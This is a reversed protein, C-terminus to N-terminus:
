RIGILYNIDLGISWVLTTIFSTSNITPTPGFPWSFGIYPFQQQQIHQAYDAMDHWKTIADPGTNLIRSGRSAPTGIKAVLADRSADNATSLQLRGDEGLVGLTAGRIGGDQIGEMVRWYDQLDLFDSEDEFVLHMHDLGILGLNYKAIPVFEVRITGM